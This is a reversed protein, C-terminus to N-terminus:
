SALGTDEVESVLWVTHNTVLECTQNCIRPQSDVLWLQKNIVRLFWDLIRDRVIVLGHSNYGGYDYASELIKLKWLCQEIQQIITHQYYVLSVSPAAM